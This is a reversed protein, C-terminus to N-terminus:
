TKLSSQMKKLLMLSNVQRKLKIKNGKLFRANKRRNNKASGNHDWATIGTPPAM